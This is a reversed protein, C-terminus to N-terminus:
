PVYKFVYQDSQACKFIRSVQNNQPSEAYKYHICNYSISISISFNQFSFYGKSPM